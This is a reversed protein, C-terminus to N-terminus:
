AADRLVLRTHPAGFDLTRLRRVLRRDERFGACELRLTAGSAVPVTPRGCAACFPTQRIAQDLTERARAADEVTDPEHKTM